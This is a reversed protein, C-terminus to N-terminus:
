KRSRCLDCSLRKERLESVSSIYISFSRTLRCFSLLTAPLTFSLLSYISHSNLCLKCIACVSYDIGSLLDKETASSTCLLMPYFCLLTWPLLPVKILWSAMYLTILNELDVKSNLMKWINENGKRERERERVGDEVKIATQGNWCHNFCSAPHHCQVRLTSCRM